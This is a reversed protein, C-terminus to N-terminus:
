LWALLDGNTITFRGPVDGALFNTRPTESVPHEMSIGKTEVDKPIQVERSLPSYGAVETCINENGQV